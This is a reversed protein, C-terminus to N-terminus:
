HFTFTGRVGSGVRERDSGPFSQMKYKENSRKQGSRAIRLIRGMPNKNTWGRTSIGM